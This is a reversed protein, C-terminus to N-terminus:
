QGLVSNILKSDFECFAPYFKFIEGHNMLAELGGPKASALFFFVVEFCKEKCASAHPPEPLRPALPFRPGHRLSKPMVPTPSPVKGWKPDDDQPREQFLSGLAVRSSMEIHPYTRPQIHLSLYVLMGEEAWCAKGPEGQRNRAQPLLGKTGQHFHQSGVGFQYAWPRM